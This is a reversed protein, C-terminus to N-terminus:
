GTGRRRLGRPCLGQRERRPTACHYVYVGPRMAQFRFTADEGPPIQTYTAGGGPGLIAHLDISHTLGSDPANRLM